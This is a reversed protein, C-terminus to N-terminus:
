SMQCLLVEIKYTSLYFNCITSYYHMAALRDFM